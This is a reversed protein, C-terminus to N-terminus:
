KNAGLQIAALEETGGTMDEEDWEGGVARDIYSKRFGETCM